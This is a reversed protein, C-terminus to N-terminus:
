LFHIISGTGDVGQTAIRNIKQIYLEIVIHNVRFKKNFSTEILRLKNWKKM